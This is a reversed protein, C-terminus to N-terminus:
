NVKDGNIYHAGCDPCIFDNTNDVNFTKKCDICFGSHAAVCSQTVISGPNVTVETELRGAKEAKIASPIAYKPHGGSVSKVEKEDLKKKM